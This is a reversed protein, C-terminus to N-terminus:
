DQLFGFKFTLASANSFNPTSKLIVGVWVSTSGSSTEIATGINSVVTHDKGAINDGPTIDVVALIKAVDATAIVASANATFTSATPQESFVVVTLETTLGEVDSVVLSHLNATWVDSRVAAPVEFAAALADGATYPTGTDVTPTVTIITTLGGASVIGEVEIPGTSGSSTPVTVGGEGQLTGLIKRLLNHQTDHQNYTLNAM